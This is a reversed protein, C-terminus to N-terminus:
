MVHPYRAALAVLADEATGAFAPPERSASVIGAVPAIVPTRPTEAATVSPPAGRIVGTVVIVMRSVGAVAAAADVATGVGGGSPAAGVCGAVSIAFLRDDKRMMRHWLPQAGATVDHM